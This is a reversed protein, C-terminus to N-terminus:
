THLWYVYSCWSVPNLMFHFVAVSQLKVLYTLYVLYTAYVLYPWVLKILQDDSAGAENIELVNKKQKPLFFNRESRTLGIIM